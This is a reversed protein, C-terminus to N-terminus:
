KSDFEFVGDWERPPPNNVLERCLELLMNTAQDDPYSHLCAEFVRAAVDWRREEFRSYAEQYLKLWEADYPCDEERGLEYLPEYIRVAIAKGAMRVKSLPRFAFRELTLDYVSEGVILPLGFKKTLGEIRSATNVADGMVTFEMRQPAGVNGAVVRGHAIGIGIHFLPRNERQWRANLGPLATRMAIAARLAQGADIGPGENTIDGWVAMIADGIYKHLSGQYRNVCAVMETFYENLQGVLEQSDMAETMSTFGRIDSFLIATDRVSGGLRLQDPNKYISELISPAVYASFSQRLQQRARRERLVQEGIAGMHLGTLGLAPWVVPMVWNGRVFLMFAVVVFAAVLLVPVVASAWFPARGLAALSGYGLLLFGVWVMWVPIERLYDEKLVNDILNMHMLPRPSQENLPSPGVDSLATSAQGILLMKGRIDPAQAKENGEVYRDAMVKLLQVYSFSLGAHDYDRIEYRYNVHYYGQGDVPIRRRVVPSELYVADGPVIRVQSPELKWYKMLASLALAPILENGARMFLPMRRIVGDPGPEANALGTGTIERLGPFSMILEELRPISALDAGAPVPWGLTLGAPLEYGGGRNLTAAAAFVTPTAIGRISELLHMDDEANSPADMIIDWVFTSPTGLNVVQMFDGHVSRPWPWRGITSIGIDDITVFIARNDPPPQNQARFRIRQDLVLNELRQLFPLSSILWLVAAVVLPAWLLYSAWFPPPQFSRSGSSM